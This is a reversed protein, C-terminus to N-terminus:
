VTEGGGPEAENIRLDNDMAFPAAVSSTEAHECLSREALVLNIPQHRFKLGDLNVEALPERHSPPENGPRDAEAM